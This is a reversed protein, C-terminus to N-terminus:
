RADKGWGNGPFIATPSTYVKRMSVKCLACTIEPDEDIPHNVTHIVHCVGCKYDYLAM